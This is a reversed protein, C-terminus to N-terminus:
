RGNWSAERRRVRRSIGMNASPPEATAGVTAHNTGGEILESRFITVDSPATFGLKVQNGQISVVTLRINDGILIEENPKRSLVLM